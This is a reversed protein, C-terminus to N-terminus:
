AGCQNGDNMEAQSQAGTPPAETIRGDHGGHIIQEGPGRLTLGQMPGVDRAQDGPLPPLGESYKIAGTALALIKGAAIKDHMEVHYDTHVEVVQGDHVVERRRCRLTKIAAQVHPPLHGLSAVKLIISGAADMDLMDTIKATLIAAFEQLVRAATIQVPAAGTEAISRLAARIHAAKVLRAGDQRPAAYGARRAALTQQGGNAILFEVFRRQKPTLPRTPTVAPKDGNSM